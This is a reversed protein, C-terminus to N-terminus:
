VLSNRLKQKIKSCSPLCYNIPFITACLSLLSKGQLEGAQHVEPTKSGLLVLDTEQKPSRFSGVTISVLGTEMPNSHPAKGHCVPVPSPGEASLQSQGVARSKGLAAKQGGLAGRGCSASANEGDGDM